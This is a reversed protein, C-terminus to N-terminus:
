LRAKKRLDPKGWQDCVGRNLEREFFLDPGLQFVSHKDSYNNDSNFESVQYSNPNQIVQSLLLYFLSACISLTQKLAIIRHFYRFFFDIKCKMSYWSKANWLWHIQDIKDIFKIVWVDTQKVRIESELINTSISKLQWVKWSTIQM